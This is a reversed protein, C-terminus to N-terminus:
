RELFARFVGMEVSFRNRTSQFQNEIEALMREDYASGYSQPIAHRFALFPKLAAHLEATIVAPRIGEKEVAMSALLREHWNNGRPAGGDLEDAITKFISEANLYFDTMFSAVARYLYADMSGGYRALFGAYDKMTLEIQALDTCLHNGVKRLLLSDHTM